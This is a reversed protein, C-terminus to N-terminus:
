VPLASSPWSFGVCFHFYCFCDIEDCCSLKWSRWPHTTRRSDSSSIQRYTTCQWLLFQVNSNIARLVFNLSPRKKLPLLSLLPLWVRRRWWWWLLLQGLRLFCFHLYWVRISSWFLNDLRRFPRKINATWTRGGYDVLVTAPMTCLLSEWIEYILSPVLLSCYLNSLIAVSLARTVPQEKGSVTHIRTLRCVAAMM